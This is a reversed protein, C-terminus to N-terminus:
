NDAAVPGNKELFSVFTGVCAPTETAILNLLTAPLNMPNVHSIYTLLWGEETKEVIWGAIYIHGRVRGKVEKKREDVVSTQVIYGKSESEKVKKMTLVFDRGSIIPWQGHQLSYILVEDKNENYAEVVELGEFRSDWKKRSDANRLSDLVQDLTFDKQLVCQGKTIPMNGEHTSPPPMTYITTKNGKTALNFATSAELEKLYALAKVQPEVHPNSAAVSFPM